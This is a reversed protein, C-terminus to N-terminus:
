KSTELKTNTTIIIAGNAGRAGWMSNGSNSAKVLEVFGVEKVSMGEISYVETGDVFYLPTTTGTLTTAIIQPNKVKLAGLISIEGTKELEERTYILGGYSGSPKNEPKKLDVKTNGGQISIEIISKGALPVIVSKVNNGEFFLTDTELNVKKLSFKGKKNTQTSKGSSSRVTVGKVGTGNDKYFGTVNEAHAFFAFSLSLLLLEIKKNMIISILM